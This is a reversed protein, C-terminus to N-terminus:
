PPTGRACVPWELKRGDLGLAGENQSGRRVGEGWRGGGGRELGTPPTISSCDEVLLASFRALVPVSGAEACVLFQGGRRLVALLWDATRMTFREEIAQKSLKLGLSGAFRALHSPGGQPKTLWGFVLLQVLSAGSFVRQRQIVGAQEALHNAEVYFLTRLIGSLRPISTMPISRDQSSSISYVQIM